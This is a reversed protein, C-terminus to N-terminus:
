KTLIDHVPGMHDFFTELAASLNEASEMAVPQVVAVLELNVDSKTIAPQGASFQESSARLQHVMLAAATQTIVPESYEGLVAWLTVAQSEGVTINISPRDRFDISITSHTDWDDPILGDHGLTQLASKLLEAIDHAM